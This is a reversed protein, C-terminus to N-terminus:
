HYLASEVNETKFLPTKGTIDVIIDLLTTVDAGHHIIDEDIKIIYDNEMPTVKLIKEEWEAIWINNEVNFVIGTNIM